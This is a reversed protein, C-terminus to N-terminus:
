TSLQRNVLLTTPAFMFVKPAIVNPFVRKTVLPLPTLKSTPPLAKRLLGDVGFENSPLLAPISANLAPDLASARFQQHFSGLPGVVGRFGPPCPSEMTPKPSGPTCNEGKRVLGGSKLLMGGTTRIIPGPSVWNYAEGSRCM